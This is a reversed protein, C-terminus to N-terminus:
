GQAKRPRGPGRPRSEERQHQRVAAEAETRRELTRYEILWRQAEEDTLVAPGIVRDPYDKFDDRRMTAILDLARAAIAHVTIWVQDLQMDREPMGDLVSSADAYLKDLSLVALECAAQHVLCEARLDETAPSYPTAPGRTSLRKIVADKQEIQADANAARKKLASVEARLEYLSKLEADDLLDRGSEAAADIASQPLSALLLAPKKGLTLMKARDGAPLRAYFKALAVSEYVRRETLGRGAIWAKFNVIEGVAGDACDANKIAEQAAWFAAGARCAKILSANLEDVGVQFFEEATLSPLGFDRLCVALGSADDKEGAVPLTALTGATVPASLAGVGLIDLDIPKSEM